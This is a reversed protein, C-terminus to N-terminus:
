AKAKKEFRVRGAIGKIKINVTLNSLSAKVSAKMQTPLYRKMANEIIQRQEILRRDEEMEEAFDGEEAM